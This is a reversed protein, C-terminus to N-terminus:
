FTCRGLKVRMSGGTDGTLTRNDSLGSCLRDVMAKSRADSANFELKQFGLEAILIGVASSKGIGPPGSVLAARANPNDPAGKGGGRFFVPKKKGRLVVDEWDSLWERLKKVSM